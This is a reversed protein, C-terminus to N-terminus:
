ILDAISSLDPMVQTIRLADIGWLNAPHVRMRENVPCVSKIAFQRLATNRRRPSLFLDGDAKRVSAVLPAKPDSTRGIVVALEGNNLRVYVGPPYVGLENLFLLTLKEDFQSGRRIFIERLSDKHKIPTRYPRPTIMASYVDALAVVRAERRIQDGKLARPYGSGDLKEHHQAVIELWLGDQVGAQQLKQVGQEPHRNIVQRQQENLPAKQQHLRQQYSNMAVNCTLCAAMVALRTEQPVQLRELILEALVAIQMPHHIPYPFQDSLHVAGLLADADYDRLGQLTVIIDYIRKQVLGAPPPTEQDILEFAQELKLCLEDFEAFPNVRRRFRLPQPVSSISKEEADKAFLGVRALIEKQYESRLITGRAMLLKGFEDYISWPIPRNIKLNESIIPSLEFNKLLM